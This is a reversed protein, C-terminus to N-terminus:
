EVEYDISNLVQATAVLPTSSGKAKITAAENPPPIGRRIKNKIDSQVSMGFVRFGIEGRLVAAGLGKKYKPYSEDYTSRLFSRTPNHGLGYEHVFGIEANTPGGSSRNTDEAHIGVTVRKPKAMRKVMPFWGSDKIGRTM